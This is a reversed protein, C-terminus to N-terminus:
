KRNEKTTKKIIKIVGEAVAEYSLSKFAVEIGRLRAEDRNMAVIELEIEPICVTLLYVEPTKDDTM